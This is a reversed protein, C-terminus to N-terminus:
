VLGSLVSLPNLASQDPKRHLEATGGYFGALAVISFGALALIAVPKLSGLFRLVSPTMSYM